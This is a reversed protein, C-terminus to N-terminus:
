RQPNATAEQGASDPSTAPPPGAGQPPRRAGSRIPLSLDNRSFGADRARTSVGEEPVPCNGATVLEGQPSSHSGSALARLDDVQRAQSAPRLETGGARCQLSSQEPARTKTGGRALVEFAAPWDSSWDLAM